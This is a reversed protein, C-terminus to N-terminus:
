TLSCRGRIAFSICWAVSTRLTHMVRQGLTASIWTQVIGLVQTVVAVAVMGGVSWLLIRVDQRPIAVDVVERVLFPQGLGIVSTAVILVTVVLLDREHGRFLSLIRRLEVAELKM